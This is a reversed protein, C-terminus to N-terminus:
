GGGEFAFLAITVRRAIPDECAGYEHFPIGVIARIVECLDIVLVPPPYFSFCLLRRAWGFTADLLTYARGYLRLVVLPAVLVGGLRSAGRLTFRM